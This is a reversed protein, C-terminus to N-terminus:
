SAAQALASGHTGYMKYLIEDIKHGDSCPKGGLSHQRETHTHTKRRERGPTKERKARSAYAVREKAAYLVAPERM